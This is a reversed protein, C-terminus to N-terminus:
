PTVEVSITRPEALAKWAAGMESPFGNWVYIEFIYKGTPDGVRTAIGGGFTKTEGPMITGRTLTLGMMTYKFWMTILQLYSVGTPAYYYYTPPCLIETEVIIVEGRKFRDRIVGKEDKTEVKTIEIPWIVQALVTAAIFVSALAVLLAKRM